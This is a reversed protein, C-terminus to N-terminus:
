GIAQGAVLYLYLMVIGIFFSLFAARRSSKSIDEDGSGIISVVLSVASISFFIITFIKLVGDM